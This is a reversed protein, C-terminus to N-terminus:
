YTPNYTGQKLNYTSILITVKSIVRSVLDGPGRLLGGSESGWQHSWAVWNLLHVRRIVGEVFIDCSPHRPVPQILFAGVLKNGKQPHWHTFRLPSCNFHEKQPEPLILFRGLGLGNVVVISGAEQM